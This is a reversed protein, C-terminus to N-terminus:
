ENFGMTKNKNKDLGTCVFFFFDFLIDVDENVLTTINPNM